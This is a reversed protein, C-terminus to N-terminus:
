SLCDCIWGCFFAGAVVEVLISNDDFCTGTTRTTAVEVLAAFRVRKTFSVSTRPPPPQDFDGGSDLHRSTAYPHEEGTRPREEVMEAVDTVTLGHSTLREPDVWLRMAYDKAGFVIVDGVVTPAGPWGYRAGERLGTTLDTVTTDEVISGGASNYLVDLKGYREVTAQIASKVSDEQTVDTEVFTANGGAERVLREAAKGLEPRLEAIVVKAGERAFIQAASRAIGSGAGTIFAVKNELRAM